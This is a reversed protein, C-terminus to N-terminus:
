IPPVSVSSRFGSTQNQDSDLRLGPSVSLLEELKAREFGIQRKSYQQLVKLMDEESQQRYGELDKALTSSIQELRKKM